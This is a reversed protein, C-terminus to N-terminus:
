HNKPTCGPDREWSVLTHTHSEAVSLGVWFQSLLHLPPTLVVGGPTSELTPTIYKPACTLAFHSMKDLVTVLGSWLPSLHFVLLYPFRVTMWPCYLKHIRLHPVAWGILALAWELSFSKERAFRSLLKKPSFKSKVWLPYVRTRQPRQCFLCM